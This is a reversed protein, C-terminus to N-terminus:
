KNLDESPAATEDPTIGLNANLDAIREELATIRIQMEILMKEYDM